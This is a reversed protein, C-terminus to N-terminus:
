LRERIIDLLKEALLEKSELALEAVKGQPGWVLFANTPSGFGVGPRATDNAAILDARAQVLRAEANIAMQADDLGVQARFACLFTKPSWSKVEDIIKPTPVLELLWKGQDTPVKVASPHAPTWDGVAAVGLFVDPKLERTLERCTTYMREATEAYYLEVGSPADVTLKGAVLLVKAGRELASRAL